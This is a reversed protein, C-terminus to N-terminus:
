RRGHKRHCEALADVKKKQASDWVHGPATWTGDKGPIPKGNLKVYFWYEREAADTCSELIGERLEADLEAAAERRQKAATEQEFKEREFQLVARNHSPLAIVFYYFM